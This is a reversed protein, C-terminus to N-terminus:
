IDPELLEPIQSTMHLVRACQCSCMIWLCQISYEYTAPLVGTLMQASLWAWIMPAGAKKGVTQPHILFHNSGIVVDLIKM